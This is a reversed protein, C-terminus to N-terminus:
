AGFRRFAAEVQQAAAREGRRAQALGELVAPLHAPEIPEPETGSGALTLMAMAIEDQLASPLGRVTDVARELLKSM